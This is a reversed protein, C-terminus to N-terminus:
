APVKNFLRFFNETTRKEIEEPTVGKIEALVKATNVVYAPECIKGRYPEPALFPSDTEVLLRDMPVDRAIDRLEQSKKFTLIGSLSIYFGISLAEEALVRKSSFCHLVGRPKKAGASEEKLILATDEEADRSHVIIPLDTEVGARIHRRFSEHQTEVPSHKYFYDLGTEGIGVVKPHKALHVLDDTSLTEGDEHVHHPHVGVSCYVDDYHEATVLVFEFDRRTTGINIMRGVG